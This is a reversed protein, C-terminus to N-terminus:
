TNYDQPQERSLSCEESAVAPRRAEITTNPSSYEGVSVDKTEERYRRVMERREEATMPPERLSRLYSAKGRILEYCEFCVAEACGSAPGDTGRRCVCCIPPMGVKVGHYQEEPVESVGELLFYPRKLKRTQTASM